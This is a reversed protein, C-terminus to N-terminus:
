DTRPFLLVRKWPPGFGVATSPFTDTKSHIRYFDFSRYVIIIYIDFLRCILIYIFQAIM